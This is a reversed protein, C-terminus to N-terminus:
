TLVGDSVATAPPADLQEDRIGRGEVYETSAEYAAGILEAARTFDNYRMLPPQGHPLLHLDVDPPMSELDRKFRHHRAIWYAQVAVDLPRRPESRPRSFSGVQLVYLTSAGLEVARSMPVDNVIAGDLYRAGNIEVSPYVAPMAASALIAELLSGQNFWVERVDNVDTAVCEFRVKLDCFRRGGVAGELMKRLGDSEHIAEGRRALAVANPLWNRPMLNKGDVNRWMEDLRDVGQLTPDDALAAGNIAGVSCGVILDPYIDHELLARLMGVQVAGLNGGGSLVFAVPGRKRRRRLYRLGGM